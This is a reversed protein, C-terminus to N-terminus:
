SIVKIRFNKRAVRETLGTLKCLVKPLEVSVVTLPDAELLDHISVEVAMKKTLSSLYISNSIGM